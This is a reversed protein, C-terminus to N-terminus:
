YFLCPPIHASYLCIVEDWIQFIFFSDLPIYGGFLFLVPYGPEQGWVAFDRYVPLFLNIFKKKKIRSDAISGAVHPRVSLNARIRSKQEEGGELVVDNNVLSQTSEKANKNNKQEVTTTNKGSAEATPSGFGILDRERKRDM